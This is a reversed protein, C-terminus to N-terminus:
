WWYGLQVLVAVLIMGSLFSTIAVAIMGDRISKDM